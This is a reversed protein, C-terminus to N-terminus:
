GGRRGKHIFIMMMGKSESVQPTVHVDEEGNNSESIKSLAVVAFGEKEIHFGAKHPRWIAKISFQKPFSPSPILPFCPFHLSSPFHFWLM